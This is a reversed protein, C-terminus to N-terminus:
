PMCPQRDPPNLSALLELLLTLLFNLLTGQKEICLRDVQAMQRQLTHGDYPNGAICMTGLLWGGKSTVAVSVKQGSEYKKGAKGKAICM